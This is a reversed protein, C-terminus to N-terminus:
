FPPLASALFAAPASARDASGPDGLWVRAAAASFSAGLTAGGPVSSPVGAVATGGLAWSVVAVLPEPMALPVTPIPV